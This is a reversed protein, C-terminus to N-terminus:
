RPSRSSPHFDIIGCIYTYSCHPATSEKGSPPDCHRAGTSPAPPLEAAALSGFFGPLHAPIYHLSHSRHSTAINGSYAPIQLVHRRVGCTRRALHAARPRPEPHNTLPFPYLSSPIKYFPKPSTKSPWLVTIQLRRRKKVMFTLMFACHLRANFVYSLHTGGTM